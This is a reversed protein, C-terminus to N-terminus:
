LSQDHSELLVVPGAEVKLSVSGQSTVACLVMEEVV